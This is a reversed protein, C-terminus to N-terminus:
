SRLRVGTRGGAGDTAVVDHARSGATVAASFTGDGRLTVAHGDVTVTVGSAAAPANATWAATRSLFDAFLADVRNENVYLTGVTQPDSLSPTVRDGHVVHSDSVDLAHGALAAAAAAAVGAPSPSAARGV